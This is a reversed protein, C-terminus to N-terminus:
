LGLIQKKKAEFEEQTIVGDDALQKLQKLDSIDNNSNDNSIQNSDIISNLLSCLKDFVQYLVNSTFSDKKTETTILPILLTNGDSFSINVGLKDIYQYQKGGTSVELLQVLVM